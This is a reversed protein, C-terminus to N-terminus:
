GEAGLVSIRRNAVGTSTAVKVFYTGSAWNNTPILLEHQGSPLAENSVHVSEGLVNSVSLSVVDSRDLLVTLHITEGSAAPIPFISVVDVGGDMNVTRIESKSETGDQDIQRLRYYSRGSLPQGDVWQYDRTQSGNGQSPVFTLAEFNVGDASREVSFGTNNEESETRWNLDVIGDRLEATFRSFEVPFVNTQRLVFLGNQTDAVLLNGSPLFPYAGWAGVFGAYDSNTYTDYYAVRTPNVPNRIDFVQLGDHYYAVYLMSDRIYMNHPVSNTFSPALLTSRFTNVVNIANPNRIDAVKIGTNHTEDAWYLYDLGETAWGQHAYGREPYTQNDALPIPNNLDSFDIGLVVGSNGFFGYLTDRKVFVDHTYGGLVFNALLTPSAPNTAIDLVLIGQNQVTSGSIYLRGNDIFLTHARSFIAQSDYVKTVTTPLGSLDFIQLSSGAGQDAIAYCYTGYTRYERWVSSSSGGPQFSVLTPSTPVTVDIFNAGAASGLIAYERGNAAYGWVSTYQTNFSTLPYSNNDWNSLLNMNQSGQALVAQSFLASLVLGGFVHALLRNYLNWYRKM